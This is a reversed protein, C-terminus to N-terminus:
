HFQIIDGVQVNSKDYGSTSASIGYVTGAQSPSDNIQFYKWLENVGVWSLTEYKYKGSSNKACSWKVDNSNGIRDFVWGPSQWMCQSVM